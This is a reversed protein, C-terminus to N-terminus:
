DPYIYSTIADGGGQRSKWGICPTFTRGKVDQKSEPLGRKKREEEFDITKWIEIKGRDPADSSFHNQQQIFVMTM